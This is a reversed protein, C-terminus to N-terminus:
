KFIDHIFVGSFNFLLSASVESKMASLSSPLSFFFFSHHDNNCNVLIM